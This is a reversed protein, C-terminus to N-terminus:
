FTVLAMCSSTPMLTIPTAILHLRNIDTAALVSGQQLVVHVRTHLPQGPLWASVTDSGMCVLGEDGKQVGARTRGGEHLSRELEM